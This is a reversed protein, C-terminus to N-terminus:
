FHQSTPSPPEAGTNKNIPEGAEKSYDKEEERRRKGGNNSNSPYQQRGQGGRGGRPPFRGNVQGRPGNHPARQPQGRGRGQDAFGRGQASFQRNVEEQRRREEIERDTASKAELLKALPGYTATYETFIQSIDPKKAVQAELQQVRENRIQELERVKEALQEKLANQALTNKRGTM